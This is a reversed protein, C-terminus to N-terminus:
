KFWYRWIVKCIKSHWAPPRIELRYRGSSLYVNISNAYSCSCLFHFWFCYQCAVQGQQTNVIVPFQYSTLSLPIHWAKLHLSPNTLTTQFDQRQTTDSIDQLPYLSGTQWVPSTSVECGILQQHISSHVPVCFLPFMVKMRVTDIVGFCIECASCTIFYLFFEMMAVHKGRIAESCWIRIWVAESSSSEAPQLPKIWEVRLCM